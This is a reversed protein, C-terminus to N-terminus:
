PVWVDLNWDSMSISSRLIGGGNQQGPAHAPVHARKVKYNCVGPELAELFLHKVAGCMKQRM